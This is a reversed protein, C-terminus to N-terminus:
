RIPLVMYLLITYVSGYTFMAVSSKYWPNKKSLAEELDAIYLARVSDIKAQNEELDRYSKILNNKADISEQMAAIEEEQIAAIQKLSDIGQLWVYFSELDVRTYYFVTEGDIKGSKLPPPQGVLSFSLLCTMLLISFIKM